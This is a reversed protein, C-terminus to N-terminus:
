DTMNPNTYSFGKFLEHDINADIDEKVPTLQPAAETFEKDFNSIDRPNAQYFNILLVILSPNTM